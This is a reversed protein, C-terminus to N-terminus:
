DVSLTPSVCTEKIEIDSPVCREFQAPSLFSHAIHRVIPLRNEFIWWIGEVGLTM